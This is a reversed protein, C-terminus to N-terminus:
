RHAAELQDLFSSQAKLIKRRGVDLTFWAVRDIEPFEQRRDSKPPWELSFTNSKLRQPEFDGRVAWAYVVKGGAQRVPKLPVFQGDPTFGTEEAFERKAAALPDEGDPFEGKPISWAGDDKKAWFPGGPHALLIELRRGVERFLLLGASRKPL